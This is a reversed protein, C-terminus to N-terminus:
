LSIPHSSDDLAEFLRVYRSAAPASNPPLNDAGGNVNATHVPSSDEKEFILPPDNINGVSQHEQIIELLSAATSYGMKDPHEFEM